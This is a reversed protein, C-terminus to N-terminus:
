FPLIPITFFYKFLTFITSHQSEIINCNCKGSIACLGAGVMMLACVLACGFQIGGAGVFHGHWHLGVWGSGGLGVAVNMFAMCILLNVNFIVKPYFGSMEKLM